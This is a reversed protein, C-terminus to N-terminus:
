RAPPQRRHRGIEGLAIVAFCTAILPDDERMRASENKWRGDNRQDKTLVAIIAKRRGAADRDALFPLLPALRCYYYFRLGETWGLTKPAEEFGPVGKVAPHSKLWGVGAVFRKDSKPTGAFRLCLLGDCTATGYSRPHKGKKDTWLAKNGLHSRQPHFFFGGDGPFNQCGRVWSGARKRVANAAASEDAALAELVYASVSVNSGSTVGRAGSGALLDWGGYDPRGPKFDKAETLQERVLFAVLKMRASKELPLGLRKCATLTMATAYAPYDLSGDPSTVFGKKSIGRQLFALGHELKARHPKVLQPPLRGMAYLVLATISAGGRMSGYTASHWGGDKAQQSMLWAVARSLSRDAKAEATTVEAGVRKTACGRLTPMAYRRPAPAARRSRSPSLPLLGIVLVLSRMKPGRYAM